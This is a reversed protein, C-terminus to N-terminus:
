WGPCTSAISGPPLAAGHRGTGPRAGLRRGVLRRLRQAHRREARGGRAPVLVGHDVLEVHPRILVAVGIADAVQGPEDPSEIVDAIQPRGRDPQEREVRRGEAVVAVVDGRVLRDMRGVPRHSIEPGQQALGVPPLEPHDGLHHHVVRRLLVRPELPRAVGLGARPLAVEVHPRVGGLAIRVCPDDEAVELGRVPCPIGRGPLVVPVAEVGVLGVEVEVLRAHSGRHEVDDVEPETQPHVPEPQIGHRVQELSLSRVALVEGLRELEQGVQAM